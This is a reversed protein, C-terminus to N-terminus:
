PPPPPILKWSTTAVAYGGTDGVEVLEVHSEVTRKINIRGGTSVIKYRAYISPSPDPFSPSELSIAAEYKGDGGSPFTVAGTILGYSPKPDARLEKIAHEVGADAIYVTTLDQRQNGSIQTSTSLLDFMSLTLLSFLIMLIMTLLLAAGCENNLDAKRVSITSYFEGM